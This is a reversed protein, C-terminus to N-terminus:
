RGKKGSHKLLLKRFNHRIRRCAESAEAVMDSTYQIIDGPYRPEVAFDNLFNLDEKFVGAAPIVQMVLHHLYLLDHSKKFTVGHYVLFAKLYKEAVQHCHFLTIDKLSKKSRKLVSVAEWDHEAKEIWQLYDSRM